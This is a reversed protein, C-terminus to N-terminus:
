GWREHASQRTMGAAAGIVTWSAGAARARAVADGLEDHARAISRTLDHVDLAPLAQRLHNEWEALAGGGTEHGHEDEGYVQPPPGGHSSPWEARPYFQGGRWGCTCVARWGTVRPAVAASTEGTDTGDDLVSAPYGEHDYAPEYGSDHIWGM